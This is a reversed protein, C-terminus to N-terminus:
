VVHGLAVISSHGLERVASVQLVRHLELDPQGRMCVVLNNTEIGGCCSAM